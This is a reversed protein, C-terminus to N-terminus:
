KCGLSKRPICAEKRKAVPIHCLSEPAAPLWWLMATIVAGMMSFLWEWSPTLIVPLLLFLLCFPSAIKSCQPELNSYGQETAQPFKPRKSETDLLLNWTLGWGPVPGARHHYAGQDRTLHQSLLKLDMKQWQGAPPSQDRWQVKLSDKLHPPQSLIQWPEFKMGIFKNELYVWCVSFSAACLHGDCGYQYSCGLQGGLPSPLHTIAM